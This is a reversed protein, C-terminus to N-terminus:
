ITGGITRDYVERSDTHMDWISWSDICVIPAEIVPIGERKAWARLKPAKMTSPLGLVSGGYSRGKSPKSLPPKSM